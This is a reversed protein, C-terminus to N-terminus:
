AYALIEERATRAWARIREPRNCFTITDKMIFELNCTGAVSLTRRLDERILADDFGAMALLAPNPKRSFIIQRECEAAAIEQDAWPSVSARRLNPVYQQLMRWRNDLPECCGYCALGFRALLPAQYQLVFEEFMQASVNSLEQSEGYTWVDRSSLAWDTEEGPLEETWSTGGSGCYENENCPCFLRNETFFAIKNEYGEQLIRCMRHLMQPNDYMDMYLQELGRLYAIPKSYEFRWWEWTRLRVRLIDGFLDEARGLTERTRGEDLAFTMPHLKELDGEDLIVPDFAGASIGESEVYVMGATVGLGSGVICHPIDITDVVVTDDPIHEHYYIRMRLLREWTRGVATECRYMDSPVLETWGNEPFCLVMPREGNLMNHARWLRKKEEQEPMRAIEGVRKALERLVARDGVSMPEMVVPGLWQGDGMFGM